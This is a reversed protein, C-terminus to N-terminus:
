TPREEEAAAESGAPRARDREALETAVRDLLADVEDMRYGRVGVSFRVGRVDDASLPRDAPVTVDPRDEYARRMSGGAGAAVVAIGGLVVVAVIALLWIVM